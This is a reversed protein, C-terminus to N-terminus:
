VDQWLTKGSPRAVPDQWPARPKYSFALKLNRIKLSRGLCSPPTMGHLRAARTYPLQKWGICRIHEIALLVYRTVGFRKM